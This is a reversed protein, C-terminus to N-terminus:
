CQAPLLAPYLGKLNAEQSQNRKGQFVAAGLTPPCKMNVDYLLDYFPLFNFYLSKRNYVTYSKHVVRSKM